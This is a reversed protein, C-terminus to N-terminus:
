VWSFARSQYQKSTYGGRVSEIEVRLNTPAVGGNDATATAVSYAQSTGAIATYTRILTGGTQANYIRVTYTTGAEPGISAETQEVLYATQLTRDRHAWAITLDGTVSSPFAVTNITVKGPPYPKINRAAFTFSDQTASALALTGLSTSPLAKVNLTEGSLYEDAELFKAGEAFWVREGAAHTWPTTDLVGRAIGFLGGAIDITKVAVIEETAGGPNIVAWTGVEVRELLSANQVSMSTQDQTMSALLTCTPTPSGTGQEVYDATGQRTWISYNTTDSAMGGACALLFGGDASLEGIATATEGTIERVVTWWPAEMQMRYPADAPETYPTTWLSGQYNSYTWTPVAYVDEILDLRIEGSPLTGYSVNSVRFPMQYVNYEDITLKVVAGISVSSAARTCIITARATPRSIKLLERTAVRNAIVDDVIGPMDISIAVQQGVASIGAIDHVTATQPKNNRDVWNLNLTNFMEGPARRKFDEVSIIMTDDIGLLTMADYDARLLKLEFLGSQPNVFVTGDVHLLVLAIFESVSATHDWVLSLGFGESYLTDAAATFSAEDIDASAYGLGYDANTLLEYIIHAPNADDGIQQKAAYWGAAPMRKIEFSWPKIYPNNQSLMVKRLVVGVVGRHASITAGLKSQLYSNRGQTAGGFELDVAGVVGGERKKGGFLEPQNISIQANASVAGTWADREGVIIRKITDAGHCLVMHMGAYYSWGVTVKKSKSM